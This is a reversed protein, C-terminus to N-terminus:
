QTNEKIWQEVTDRLMHMFLHLFEHKDAGPMVCGPAAFSMSQMAEGNAEVKQRIYFAVVLPVDMGAEKALLDRVVEMHYAIHQGNQNTLSVSRVTM